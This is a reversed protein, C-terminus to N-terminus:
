KTWEQINQGIYLLSLVFQVVLLLMLAQHYVFKSVLTIKLNHFKGALTFWLYLDFLM